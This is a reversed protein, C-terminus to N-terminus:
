VLNAELGNKLNNFTCEKYRRLEPLDTLECLQVLLPWPTAHHKSLTVVELRPFVRPILGFYLEDTGCMFAYHTLHLTTINTLQALHLLADPELLPVTCSGIYLRLETLHQLRCLEPILDILHFQHFLQKHEM